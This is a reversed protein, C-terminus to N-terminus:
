SSFIHPLPLDHPEVPVSEVQQENFAVGVVHADPRLLPLFQDYNGGGYGLRNNEADFAVLPVIVIDFEHPEVLPFDCLFADPTAEDTTSPIRKLPAMSSPNQFIPDSSSFPRMPSNIFPVAGKVYFEESVERFIMLTERSVSTRFGKTICPFCIRAGQAYAAQIFVELNVESKMAAYVAITKGALTKEAKVNEPIVSDSEPIQHPTPVTEHPFFKSKPLACFSRLLSACISTSKEQRVSEPIQDRRTLVEERLKRKKEAIM